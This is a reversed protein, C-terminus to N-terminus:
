IQKYQNTQYRFIDKFYVEPATEMKRECGGTLPNVAYDAPLCISCFYNNGPMCEKCYKVVCQKEYFKYKCTNINTDKHYYLKNDEICETCNYKNENNLVFHTVETCNNLFEYNNRAHCIATSNELYTIRILADGTYRGGNEDKRCKVCSYIPIDDTGINTFIECLDFNIADMFEKNFCKIQNDEELLAYGSDCKACEYRNNGNLFALQCHPLEELDANSSIRLCTYNNKSLIFGEKCINCQPINNVNNCSSCGEIGGNDIDECSICTNDKGRIENNNCKICKGQDNTFYGLQCEVCIIENDHEKDVGCNKCHDFGLTSCHHCTGDESILYGNDCQDCSFRRKRKFGYYGELYNNEYHCEICGDNITDCPECVGKAKELFGTKCKGEECKLTINKKLDFTCKGKCGVMGVTRNNCAYCYKGDPTFLKNNECTGNITANVHEVNDPDFITSDIERIKDPKYQINQCIIKEFFINYYSIYGIDCYTCNYINNLYTTDAYVESCGALEGSKSECFKAGTDSTILLDDSKYCKYCSYIPDSDNGINNVYCNSFGPRLNMSVKISQKCIKTDDDLAYDDVCEVCEYTDNNGFYKARRCKRLNEPSFIGGKGLNDICLYGKSIINMIQSNNKNREWEKFLSDIYLEYVFTKMEFSEIIEKERPKEADNFYNTYNNKKKNYVKVQETIEYYYSIDVYKSYKSERCLSYCKYYKEYTDKPFYGEEKSIDDQNELFLSSLSCNSINATVCSNNKLDYGEKCSYCDSHVIYEYKIINNNTNQTDLGYEDLTNNINNNIINKEVYDKQGACHPIKYIYSNSHICHNNKSLIYNNKCNTCILKEKQAINDVKLTCNQCGDELEDQCKYCKGESTIFGGPCHKCIINDTELGNSNLEYGCLECAPGGNTNAKCRVCSDDKTKFYGEKCSQCKKKARYENLKDSCIICGPTVEPHVDCTIIQCKKEDNVFYGDICKDCEFKNIASNLHCELCASSGERCPFCQGHTYEYYGVKCENCNLQDNSSIYECGSTVVCGPNGFRADDCKFCYNNKKFEDNACNENCINKNYVNSFIFQFNNICKTCQINGTEDKYAKQCLILDNIRQYCDSAGRYDTVNTYFSNICNICSYIPNTETGINIAEKCLSNLGADSPLRCNKDNLIPIFESKCKYCEYKNSAMNKTGLLCGYLQTNSPETNPICEYSNTVNTYDANICRYCKYKNQTQDYSCLECGNGLEPITPCELCENNKLAYGTYCDICGFDEKSQIWLCDKCVTPCLQCQSNADLAYYINPSNYNYYSNCSTCKLNNNIDYICSSCHEPCHVCNKNEDMVSNYFCKDCIFGEESEDYHCTQCDSPCNLCKGDILRYGAKCMYCFPSNNSYISCHACGFGCYTCTGRNNFNFNSWCSLCRPGNLREDYVCNYCGIPCKTCERPSSQYFTENCYCFINNFDNENDTCQRCYGGEIPYHNCPKCNGGSLYYDYFCKDCISNSSEDYFHCESCYQKYCQHCRGDNQFVRYNKDICENCKFIRQETSEPDTGEPPLNSCKSCYPSAYGCNWCVSKDLSYFGEKCGFEDCKFINNVRKCNGQCGVDGYIKHDCPLCMYNYLFQFYNDKCKACTGIEGDVTSCIECNDIQEDGCKLSFILQFSSLTLIIILLNLYRM